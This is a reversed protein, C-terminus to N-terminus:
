RALRADDALLCFSCFYLLIIYLPLRKITDISFHEFETYFYAVLISSILAVCVGTKWVNGRTKGPNIPAERHRNILFSKKCTPIDPTLLQLM